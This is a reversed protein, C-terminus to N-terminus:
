SLSLPHPSGRQQPISTGGREHHFLKQSIIRKRKLLEDKLPLSKTEPNSSDQLWPLMTNLSPSLRAELKICFKNKTHRDTMAVPLKSASCLSFVLHPPISFFGLQKPIFPPINSRVSSSQLQSFLFDQGLKKGPSSKLSTQSGEKESQRKLFTCGLICLIVPCCQCSVIYYLLIKLQISSMHLMVM